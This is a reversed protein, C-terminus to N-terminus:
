HLRAVAVRGNALSRAAGGTPTGLRTATELLSVDSDVVWGRDILLGAMGTPSWLSRWAEGALPSPVGTLRSALGAVRRGLQATLSRSQYQVVLISGAASIGTLADLTATVQARSLYPIVGEWVWATPVLPDHGASSLLAGLPEHALDAAVFRLDCVPDPLGEARRRLDAQSAPHDVSFVPIGRLPALRWPRADLGAGLLVVQWDGGRELAGSVATDIVVTRPAMVEACATVSLVAFRERGDEPLEGHRARRVPALEVESLLLEAFPDAFRGVGLRGDAV